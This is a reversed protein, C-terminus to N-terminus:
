SFFFFFFGARIYKLKTKKLCLHRRVSWKIVSVAEHASGKYGAVCVFRVAACQQLGDQKVSVTAFGKNDIVWLILSGVASRGDMECMSKIVAKNNKYKDTNKGWVGTLEIKHSTSRASKIKATSKSNKIHGYTYNTSNHPKTKPNKASESSKQSYIQGKWVLEYIVCFPLM